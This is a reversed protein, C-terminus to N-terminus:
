ETNIHRLQYENCCLQNTCVRWQRAVGIFTDEKTYEIDVIGSTVRGGAIYQLFNTVKLNLSCFSCQMLAM